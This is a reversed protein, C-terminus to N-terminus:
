THQGSHLCLLHSTELTIPVQVKFHLSIIKFGNTRHKESAMQLAIFCWIPVEQLKKKDGVLVYVQM